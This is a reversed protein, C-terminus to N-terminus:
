YFELSDWMYYRPGATRFTPPSGLFDLIGRASISDVLKELERRAGRADWAEFLFVLKFRRIEGMKRLMRFLTGQRPLYNITSGSYIIVLESFVPSTITSFAEMVM